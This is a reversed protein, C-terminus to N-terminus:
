CATGTHTNTHTHPLSLSVSLSHQPLNASPVLIPSAKRPWYPRIVPPVPPFFPSLSPPVYVTYCVDMGHQFNHYENDYYKGAVELVFADFITVPIQFEEFLNLM